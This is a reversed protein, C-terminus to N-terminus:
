VLQKAIYRMANFVITYNMPELLNSILENVESEYTIDSHIVAFKKPM